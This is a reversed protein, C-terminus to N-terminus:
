SAQRIIPSFSNKRVLYIFMIVVILVAIISFMLWTTNETPKFLVIESQYDNKIGLIVKDKKGYLNYAFVTQHYENERFAPISVSINQRDLLPMDVLFKLDTQHSGLKIGGQNLTIKQDGVWLDCNLKVYDVLAKKYDVASMNSVQDGYRKKMMAHVGVQSLHVSLVSVEDTVNLYYKASLTNHASLSLPSIMIILGLIFRYMNRHM